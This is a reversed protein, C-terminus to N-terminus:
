RRVNKRGARRQDNKALHSPLELTDDILNEVAVQVSRAYELLVVVPPVRIGREFASIEERVLEEAFGLERIMENQSLQLHRRIAALKLGLRKPKRLEKTTRRGM